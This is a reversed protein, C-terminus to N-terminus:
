VILFVLIEYDTEAMLEGDVIFHTASNFIKREIDQFSINLIFYTKHHTEELIADFIYENQHPLLSTFHKGELQSKNAYGLLQLAKDNCALIFGMKSMKLYPQAEKLLSLYINLKDKLIEDKKSNMILDKLTRNEIVVADYLFSATLLIAPTCVTNLSFTDKLNLPFQIELIENDTNNNLYVESFGLLAGPLTSTVSNNSNQANYSENQILRQAYLFCSQIFPKLEIIQTPMRVLWGEWADKEQSSPQLKILFPCYTADFMFAVFPEKIEKIGSNLHISKIIKEFNPSFAQWKKFDYRDIYPFNLRQTTAHFEFSL